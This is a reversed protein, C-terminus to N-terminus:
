SARQRKNAVQYRSGLANCADQWTAYSGTAVALDFFSIPGIWADWYVGAGPHFRASPNRDERGVAHCTVWGAANEREGRLRLGWERAIAIRDHSTLAEAVADRDYHGCRAVLKPGDPRVFPSPAKKRAEVVGDLAARIWPQFDAIADGCLPGRVWRYSRREGDVVKFSPPVKALRGDGLVEIGNHDSLKARRIESEWIFAWPVCEGDAVRFWFQRGGRPTDVAWTEPTRNARSWYNWVSRGVPGDVDVVAVGWLAGTAVQVCTQPSRCLVGEGRVRAEYEDASMGEDRQKSYSYCPHGHLPCSPMPNFGLGRLTRGADMAALQDDRGSM